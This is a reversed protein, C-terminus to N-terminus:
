VVIITRSSVKKVNTLKTQAFNKQSTSEDEFTIKLKIKICINQFITM